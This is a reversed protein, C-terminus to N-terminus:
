TPSASTREWCWARSRTSVDAHPDYGLRQPVRAGPRDGGAAAAPGCPASRCPALHAHAAARGDPFYFTDHMARGSPEEPHEASRFQPLRRRSRSGDGGPIGGPCLDARHAIAHADGSSPQRSGPRAGPPNCRPHGQRTRRRAGGDRASHPANGACEPDGDERRQNETRRGSARRGVPYGPEQAARHAAGEKAWYASACRTWDPWRRPRIWTRSRKSSSARFPKQPPWQINEPLEVSILKRRRACM